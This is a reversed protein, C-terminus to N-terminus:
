KGELIERARKDVLADFAAKKEMDEKMKGARMKALAEFSDEKHGEEKKEGSDEKKEAGEFAEAMKELAIVAVAEAIKPIWDGVSGLFTEAANSGWMTSTTQVEAVKMQFDSARQPDGMVYSAYDMQPQSQTEPLPSVAPTQPATQAPAQPQESAALQAQVQPDNYHTMLLNYLEIKEQENLASLDAGATEAVKDLTNFAETKELEYQAMKQLEEKKFVGDILELTNM